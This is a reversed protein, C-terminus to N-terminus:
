PYFARYFRMAAASATTDLYTYPSVTPTPTALTTWNILNTSTQLTLTFNPTNNIVLTVTGNAARSIPGFIPPAPLLNPITITTSELTVAATQALARGDLTAGTAFTISDHAMITGQFITTTGLAASTGVQWFINSAQAGGALIVQIGDDVTLTSAIQFIWVDTAGGALMLASGSILAAGTFKYLGGNSLTLGGLNGSGPNLFPGTPVPTRGAADNYAITLDGQARTLMVATAGGDSAAYISGTVEPSTLGSIYSRAAPSLGVDGTIASAPVDTIESAALIAFRSTSLLNVPLQGATAGPHPFIVAMALGIILGRVNFTNNKNVFTNEM